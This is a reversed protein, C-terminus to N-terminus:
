ARPATPGGKGAGGSGGLAALRQEIQEPSLFMGLLNRLPQLLRPLAGTTLATPDIGALKCARRVVMQAISVHLGLLQQLRESSIKEGEAAQTSATGPTPQPSSAIPGQKRRLLSQIQTCLRSIDQSKILFADAGVAMRQSRGSANESATLMVITMDHAGGLQRLRRCAELGGMGPMMMDLVVCDVEEDQLINLAEEGSSAVLVDNGYQRIQAAVASLFTPSDDVVLYRHGGLNASCLSEVAKVLQAVDCPKDIYKDAGAGKSLERESAVSSAISSLVIVPIHRLEPDEKMEALLDTGRGDPLQIDLVALDCNRSKLVQRATTLTGCAAVAFNARALAQRLDM